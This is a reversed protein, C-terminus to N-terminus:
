RDEELEKRVQERWRLPVNDIGIKGLKVQLEYFQSMKIGSLLSLSGIESFLSELAELREHDTPHVLTDASSDVAMEDASRECVAGDVYKYRYVDNDDVISKTLYNGQALRYKDGIGRDIEIWGSTNSVFASSNIETVLNNEDIKIYVIYDM